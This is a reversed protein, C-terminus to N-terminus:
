LVLNVLLTISDLSPIRTPRTANKAPDVQSQPIRGTHIILQDYPVKTAIHFDRLM